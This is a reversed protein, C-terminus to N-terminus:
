TPAAVTNGLDIVKQTANVQTKKGAAFRFAGAPAGRKPNAISWSHFGVFATTM